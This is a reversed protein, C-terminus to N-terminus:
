SLRAPGHRRSLLPTRRRRHRGKGRRVTATRRAGFEPVAVFLAFSTFIAAEVVIPWTISGTQPRPVVASGARSVRVTDPSTVVASASLGAARVTLSLAGPADPVLVNYQGLLDDAVSDVQAVPDLGRSILEGGTAAALEALGAPAAGLSVGYVATGGTSAATEALPASEAALAIVVNRRDSRSFRLATDVGAALNPQGMPHVGALAAVAAARSRPPSAIVRPQGGAAIVAYSTQSPM